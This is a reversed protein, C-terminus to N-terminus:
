EKTKNPELPQLWVEASKKLCFPCDSSLGAIRCNGGCREETLAVWDGDIEKYIKGNIKAYRGSVEIELKM